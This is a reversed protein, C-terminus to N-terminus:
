NRMLEQRMADIDRVCDMLRNEIDDDPYMIVVATMQGRCKELLLILKRQLNLFNRNEM